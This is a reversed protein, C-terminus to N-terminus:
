GDLKVGRRIDLADHLVMLGEVAVSAREPPLTDLLERLRSSVREDAAELAAQGAPTMSVKIRRRDDPDEERLVLGRLFLGDVIGTVTPRAVQLKDALVAGAASGESMLSLLRYQALTLGADGVAFEMQRGLRAASRCVDAPISGNRVIM